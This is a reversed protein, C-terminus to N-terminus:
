PSSETAPEVTETDVVVADVEKIYEDCMQRAKDAGMSALVAGFVSMTEDGGEALWASLGKIAAQKTVGERGIAKGIGLVSFDLKLKGQLFEKIANAILESDPIKEGM